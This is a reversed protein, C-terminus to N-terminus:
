EIVKPVKIFDHAFDPANQALSAHMESKLAVDPRLAQRLDFPHRIPTLANIEPTNISDFLEFIAHLQEGFRLLDQEEFHLKALQATKRIAEPTIDAQM